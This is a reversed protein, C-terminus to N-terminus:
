RAPRIRGGRFSYAISQYHEGLPALPTPTASAASHAPSSAVAYAIYSESIVGM